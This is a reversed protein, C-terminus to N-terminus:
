PVFGLADRFRNAHEPFRVIGDRWVQRAADDQGLQRHAWGYKLVPDPDNPARAIAEELLSLAIRPDGVALHAAGAIACIVAYDAHQPDIRAALRIIEDYREADALREFALRDLATPNLSDLPMSPAAVPGAGAADGDPPALSAAPADSAVSAHALLWDAVESAREGDPAVRRYRGLYPEAREPADRHRAYLLGLNLLAPPHEGDIALARAFHREAEAIDGLHLHMLGANNWAGAMVPARQIVRGYSRLADQYMKLQAQCGALRWWAEHDDPRLAVVRAHFREARDFRGLREYATAIRQNVEPDRRHEDYVARYAEIARLYRRQAYLTDAEDLSGCAALSTMLAIFAAFTFVRNM